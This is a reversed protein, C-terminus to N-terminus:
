GGRLSSWSDWQVYRACGESCFLVAWCLFFRVFSRVFWRVFSRVFWRVFSRVFALTCVTDFPFYQSVLENNIDLQQLQIQQYYSVDWSDLMCEETPVNLRNSKLEALIQIEKSLKPQLRARLEDLFLIVRQPTQAMKNSLMFSADSDFGLLEAAQKRLLLIKQLIPSNSENCRRRAWCLRALALACLRAWVLSLAHACLYSRARTHAYEANAQAMRRRTTDSHAYKLLPLIDPYKLSVLFNPENSGNEERQLRSLYSDSLGDLEKRTFSVKTQDNYVNTNFQLSLIAIETTISQLKKQCEEELDIGAFSWGFRVFRLSRAHTTYTHHLRTGNRKFDNVFKSHLRRQEADWKWERGICAYLDRKSFMTIM